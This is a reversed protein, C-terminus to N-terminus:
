EAQEEIEAAREEMEARKRAEELARSAVRYRFFNEVTPYDFFAQACECFLAFVAEPDRVYAADPDRAM